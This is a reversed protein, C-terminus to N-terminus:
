TLIKVKIKKQKGIKKMKARELPKAPLRFIAGGRTLLFWFVWFDGFPISLQWLFHFKTECCWFNFQVLVVCSHVGGSIYTIGMGTSSYPVQVVGLVTVHRQINQWVSLAEVQLVLVCVRLLNGEGHPNRSYMNINSVNSEAVGHQRCIELTTVKFEDGLARFRQGNVPLSKKQKVRNKQRQERKWNKYETVKASTNKGSWNKKVKRKETQFKQVQTNKESRKNDKNEWNTVQVKKFKHTKRVETKKIKRKETQLKYRKSGTYKWSWNKKRKTEWNTVQLKILKWKETQLM